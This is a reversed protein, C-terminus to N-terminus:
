RGFSLCDWSLLTCHTQKQLKEFVLVEDDSVESDTCKDTKEDLDQRVTTKQKTKNRTTTINTIARFSRLDGM